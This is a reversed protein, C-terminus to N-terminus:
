KILRMAKRIKLAFIIPNDVSQFHIHTLRPNTNLWHNHLSVKIGSKQLQYVFPIIESKLVVVQGLNLARGKRDILEFSFRHYVVLPSNTRRGFITVKINKRKSVSCMEDTMELSGGLLRAFLKCLRKNKM